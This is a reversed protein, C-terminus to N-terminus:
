LRGSSRLLGNGHLRPMDYCYEHQQRLVTWVRAARWAQKLPLTALLLRKWFIIIPYNKGSWSFLILYLAHSFKPSVTKRIKSRCTEDGRLSNECVKFNKSGNKGTSNMVNVVRTDRVLEENVGTLIKGWIVFVFLKRGVGEMIKHSLAKHCRHKKQMQLGDCRLNEWRCATSWM